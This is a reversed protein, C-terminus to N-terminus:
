RQGTRAGGAILTAAGVHAVMMLVFTALWGVALGPTSLPSGGAGAVLLAMVVVAVVNVVAALGVRAGLTLRPALWGAMLGGGVAAVPGVVIVLAMVLRTIGWALAITMLASPLAAKTTRTM